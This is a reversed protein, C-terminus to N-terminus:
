CAPRNCSQIQEEVRMVLQKKLPSGETVRALILRLEASEKFELKQSLFQWLEWTFPWADCLLLKTARSEFDGMSPTLAVYADALFVWPIFIIGVTNRLAPVEHCIWSLALM